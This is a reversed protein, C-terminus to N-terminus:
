TLSQASLWLSWRWQCIYNCFSKRCLLICAKAQSNRKFGTGRATRKLMDKGMADTYM